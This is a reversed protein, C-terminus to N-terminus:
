EIKVETGFPSLHVGSSIPRNPCYFDRAGAPNRITLASWIFWCRILELFSVFNCEVATRMWLHGYLLLFSTFM